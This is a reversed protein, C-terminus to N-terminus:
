RKIGRNEYYKDVSHLDIEYSVITKVKIWNKSWNKNILLSKPNSDGHNCSCAVTMSKGNDDKHWYSVAGVGDCNSCDSLNM